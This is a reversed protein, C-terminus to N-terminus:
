MRAQTKEDAQAFDRISSFLLKAYHASYHCKINVKDRARTLSPNREREEQAFLTRCADGFFTIKAIKNNVLDLVPKQHYKEDKVHICIIKACPVEDILSDFEEPHSGINVFVINPDSKLLLMFRNARRQFASLVKKDTLDHHQFKISEWLLHRSRPGQGYYALSEIQDSNFFNSFNTKIISAIDSPKSFTWDFPYSESRNGTDQLLQAALCFNGCPIFNYNEGLFKKLKHKLTGQSFDRKAERCCEIQYLLDQNHQEPINRCESQAASLVDIAEDFLGLSILMSAISSHYTWCSPVLAILERLYEISRKYDGSEKYIEAACNILDVCNPIATLGQEIITKAEKFRKLETLDQAARIYGSLDAPHCRMINQACNLSELRQNAARYADSALLLLNIDNPFIILYNTTKKIACHLYNKSIEINRKANSVEKRDNFYRAKTQHSHSLSLLDEGSRIYGLPNDPYHTILLEAYELCKERDGSARYIDNAVILLNFQNPFKELDARIKKQARDFRKLAVLDETFRIYGFPNDPYHTILLEAYELSKERDGSARYIDNAVALLDFQNPFIKLGTAITKKAAVLKESNLFEKIEDAFTKWDGM